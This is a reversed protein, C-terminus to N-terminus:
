WGELGLQEAQKRVDEDYLAAGDEASRIGSGVEVTLQELAPGKVPSVFELAPSTAGEQEFYPLMDQVAQPVDDPLECGDVMYPGSPAAAKTQSECGEVSGVFAAFAKAAELEAGETTTPIYVGAPTWVTAGNTEPDDGPLAFFGVDDLNEAHNNAIEAIAFTLMPYHAGEGTAVMRLGDAYGASAFDENFYGAEFAEQQHQFGKLAAESTAYKAENGTYREAFDPEAVTVNHFDGLVFLQSTWTDTYTQIIPAAEGAEDIAQNNAMFEDWTTPVELGLEEYIPRNYLVGGGMATGFPAGYV